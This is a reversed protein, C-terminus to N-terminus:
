DADDVVEYAVSGLLIGTDRLPSNKGKLEATLKSNPPDSWNIITEQMQGQVTQGVDDLARHVDYDHRRLAQGLGNGWRPSKSAVTNRMFPRPPSSKTGFENWAAVQAVPGDFKPKGELFNMFALTEKSVGKRAKKSFHYPGGPYKRDEFFGVKVAAGKGLKAVIQKLHRELAKGGKLEAHITQSAM